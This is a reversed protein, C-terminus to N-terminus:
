TAACPLQTFWPPPVQAVQGSWSGSPSAAQHARGLVAIEPLLRHAVWEGGAVTFHVGDSCRVPVGDVSEAYHGGPSLWSGLDIVTLNGHTEFSTPQDNKATPLKDNRTTKQATGNATSNPTGKTTSATGRGANAGLATMLSNDGIVRSPDDEPWISGNPQVGTDYFPSTLMVVHAGRSGLVRVAQEYRSTMYGDFSSDGIHEWISNVQQNLVDGRALYVVVDPNWQDVWTRWQALLAAPDGERCPKGPPGTFWLVQVLEDMSVSCGPSGENVAVVGYQASVRGLGVGLSGALSDGVILVKVPEGRPAAFLSAGSSTPGTASQRAAVVPGSTLRSAALVQSAADGGSAAAGPVEVTSVFVTLVALGAAAPMTLTTPWTSLRGRRVPLEVLYASVTAIGIIVALRAALLAPGTLRVRPSSMVLVVPWYWLYMGYSIRGVFRLPAWALVSGISTPPGSALCAIVAATALSTLFFGGHFAVFSNEPVFAWLAAIGFFGTVGGVALTKAARRRKAPGWMASAVALAAGVLLGQARTDSGYYSRATDSAAGTIAAMWIASATAGATSICLLMALRRRGGPADGLRSSSRRRRTGASLVALVVVPWLLYFQEEIALSWTHLLPLHSSAVFYNSHEAILHWNAVQLVTAITDSRLSPGAFIQPWLVAGIGVGILMVFLAPLLRRARRTWFGRLSITGSVRWEAVLLATILYGSLTFFVDVGLYGGPVGGSLTHFAIVAVVAFARIGDLAPRHPLAVSATPLSTSPVVSAPGASADRTSSM